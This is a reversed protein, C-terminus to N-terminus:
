HLCLSLCFNGNKKTLYGDLCNRGYTRKTRSFSFRVNEGFFITKLFCSKLYTSSSKLTNTGAEINPSVDLKVFTRVGQNRLVSVDASMKVSMDISGAM